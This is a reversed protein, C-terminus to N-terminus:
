RESNIFSPANATGITNVMWVLNQGYVHCLKQNIIVFIKFKKHGNPNYFRVFSM